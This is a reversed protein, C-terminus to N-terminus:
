QGLISIWDIGQQATTIDRVTVLVLLGLLLMFGVMHIFGEREPNVRRGRIAEVLIFLLRGGDLAPLPLLNTIALAASLVASLRWIPFWLGTDMTANVAGGVMQAIGVPGTLQADSPSVQGMVLLVPLQLVLLVYEGTSRVGEWLAGWPPLTALQSQPGIQVGLSGQGEPPNARPTIPTVIYRGGRLLGLQVEQGAHQQIVENLPNNQSIITEDVAYVLDGPQLGAQAAPTDEVVLTVETSLVPLYDLGGLLDRERLTGAVPLAMVQGDRLVTLEPSSGAASDDRMVNYSFDELASVLVRRGNLTLLVDNPQLGAEAAASGPQVAIAQPYGVVAPFGAMFSAAFLVVALLANMLPGAVLTAARAMRSAANFSGPTMDGMDEGKMRAFGGFPILNLTFDTGDYRFLKVLRPPYGMGFEEVVIGNRRAVWYHGLEHFFVLVGLVLIFSVVTLIM